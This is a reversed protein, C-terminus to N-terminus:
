FLFGIGLIISAVFHTIFLVAIDSKFIFNEDSFIKQYVRKQILLYILLYSFAVYLPLLTGMGLFLGAVAIFLGLFSCITNMLFVKKKAKKVDVGEVLHLKGKKVSEFNGLSATIIWIAKAIIVIGCFVYIDM